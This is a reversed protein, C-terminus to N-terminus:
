WNMRAACFKAPKGRLDVVTASFIKSIARATRNLCDYVRRPWPNFARIKREIADAPESWDIKGDERKLKPAYTAVRTTRRLARRTEKRLCDLSELLAEPAVGACDIM